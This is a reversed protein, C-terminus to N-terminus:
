VLSAHRLRDVFLTELRPRGIEQSSLDQPALQAGPLSQELRGDGIVEAERTARDARRQAAQDLLAQDTVNGVRAVLHDLEAIVVQPLEIRQAAREFTEARAQRCEPDLLAADRLQAR